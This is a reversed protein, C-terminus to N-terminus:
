SRVEDHAAYWGVVRWVEAWDEAWADPHEAYYAKWNRTMTVAAVFEVAYSRVEERAERSEREPLRGAQATWWAIRRLAFLADDDLRFRAVM